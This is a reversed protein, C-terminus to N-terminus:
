KDGGNGFVNSLLNKNLSSKSSEAEELVKKRKSEGLETKDRLSDVSNIGALLADIDQISEALEESQYVDDNLVRARDNDERLKDFMADKFFKGGKDKPKYNKMADIVRTLSEELNAKADDLLVKENHRYQGELQKKILEKQKASATVRIDGSNNPLPRINVEFVFKNRIEWPELYDSEKYAKGLLSKSEEVITEYQGMFWEVERDWQVQFDNISQQVTEFHKNPLLYYVSKSNHGDSWPYVYPRVHANFFTNYMSRMHKNIDFSYIKKDVKIHERYSDYQNAVDSSIMRDVKIGSPMSKHVHILTAIEQLVSQKNDM